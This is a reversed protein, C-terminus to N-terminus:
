LVMNSLNINNALGFWGVIGDASNKVCDLNGKEMAIELKVTSEDGRDDYKHIYGGTDPLNKDLFDQKYDNTWKDVPLESIEFHEDDM